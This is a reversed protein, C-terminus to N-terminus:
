VSSIDELTPWPTRAQLGASCTQVSVHKVPARYTMNYIESPFLSVFKLTLYSNPSFAGGWLNARPCYLLCGEDPSAKQSRKHSFFLIDSRSETFTSFCIVLFHQTNCSQPIIFRGARLQLWTWERLVCRPRCRFAWKDQSVIEIESSCKYSKYSEIHM